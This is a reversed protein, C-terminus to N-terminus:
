MAPIAQQWRASSIMWVSLGPRIRPLRLQRLAMTRNTEAEYEDVTGPGNADFGNVAIFAVDLSLQMLTSNAFPGTIEFSRNNLVGGVLVIKIQSRGVLRYAVDIANTVVTIM